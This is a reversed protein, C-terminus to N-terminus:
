TRSSVHFLSPRRSPVTDNVAVVEDDEAWCPSRTSRSPVQGFLGQFGEPQSQMGVLGPDDIKPFTRLTEVEQAEM